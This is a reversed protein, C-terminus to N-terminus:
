QLEQYSWDNVLVKRILGTGGAVTGLDGIYETWTDNQYIQMSATSDSATHWAVYYLGNQLFGCFGNIRVSQMAYSYRTDPDWRYLLHTRNSYEWVLWWEVTGVDTMWGSHSWLSFAAFANDAADKIPAGSWNLGTTFTEATYRNYDGGVASVKAYQGGINPEGNFNYPVVIAGRDYWAIPSYTLEQIAWTDGGDPSFGV